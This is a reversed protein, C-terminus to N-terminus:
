QYIVVGRSWMSKSLIVAMGQRVTLVCRCWGFVIIWLRVCVFVKEGMIGEYVLVRGLLLVYPRRRRTADLAVTSITAAVMAVAVCGEDVSLEM